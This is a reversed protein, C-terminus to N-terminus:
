KYTLGDGRSCLEEATQGDSVVCQQDSRRNLVHQGNCFAPACVRVSVCVCVSVCRSVYVQVRVCLVSLWKVWLNCSPFMKVM